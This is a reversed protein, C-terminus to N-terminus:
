ALATPESERSPRGPTTPRAAAGAILLQGAGSEEAAQAVAAAAAPPQSAGDRHDSKTATQEPPTPEPPTSEPPTPEDDDPPLTADVELPAVEIMKAILAQEKRLSGSAQEITAELEVLVPVNPLQKLPDFVGARRQLEGLSSLELSAGGDEVAKGAERLREELSRTIAEAKTCRQAYETAEKHRRELTRALRDREEGLAGLQREMELLGKKAELAEDRAVGLALEHRRAEGLAEEMDAQLQAVSAQAAQGQVERAELRGRLKAGDAESRKVQLELETIRMKQNSAEDSRSQLEKDRAEGKAIIRKLDNQLKAYEKQLDILRLQAADREAALSAALSRESALERELVTREEKLAELAAVGEDAEKAALTERLRQVEAELKILETKRVKNVQANRAADALPGTDEVADEEYQSLQASLRTTSQLLEHARGKAARAELRAAELDSQLTALTSEHAAKEALAEKQHADFAARLETLEAEAKGASASADHAELTAMEVQQTLSAKTKAMAESHADELRAAMTAKMQQVYAELPQDEEGQPSSQQYDKLTVMVDGTVQQKFMYRALISAVVLNPTYSCIELGSVPCIPATGAARAAELLGEVTEQSYTVGSPTVVVPNALLATSHPDTLDVQLTEDIYMAFAVTNKMLGLQVKMDAERRMIQAQVQSAYTSMKVTHGQLQGLASELEAVDEQKRVVEAEYSSKATVLRQQMTRLDARKRELTGELQRMAERMEAQAAESREQASAREAELAQQRSRADDLLAQQKSVAADREALAELGGAVRGELEEITGLLRQVEAKMEANENEINRVRAEEAELQAFRSALGAMKQKFRADLGAVDKQHAKALKAVERRMAEYQKRTQEEFLTNLQKTREVVAAELQGRQKGGLAQAVNPDMPPLSNSGSAAPPEYSALPLGSANLRGPRQAALSDEFQQEPASLSESGKTTRVPLGLDGDDVVLGREGAFARAAQTRRTSRGIAVRAGGGGVRPSMTATVRPSFSGTRPSGPPMPDGLDGPASQPPPPLISRSQPQSGYLAEQEAQALEAEAAAVIASPTSLVTGSGSPRRSQEQASSLESPPMRPSNAPAMASGRGVPASPLVPELM